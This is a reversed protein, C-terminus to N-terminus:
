NDLIREAAGRRARGPPGKAARLQRKASGRPRSIQPDWRQTLGGSDSDRSVDHHQASVPLSESRGAWSRGTPEAEEEGSDSAQHERESARRIRPQRGCRQTSGRQPRAHAAAARAPRDGEGRDLRRPPPVAANRRGPRRVEAVSSLPQEARATTLRNTRTGGSSRQEKLRARPGFRDRRARTRAKGRGGRGGGAPVGPLPCIKRWRPTVAEHVDRQEVTSGGGPSTERTRCSSCRPFADGSPSAAV